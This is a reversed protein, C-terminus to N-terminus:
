EGNDDRESSSFTDEVIDLKNEISSLLDPIKRTTDEEYPVWKEKEPSYKCKVLVRGTLSKSMINDCLISCEKSPIYAIGMRKIKFVAKNNSIIKEYLYLKYVDVIETKRMEFTATIQTDNTKCIYRVIKKKHNKDELSEINKSPLTQHYLLPSKLNNVEKISNNFLFILKTGSIEPYFAMGKIPYIKSKKANKVLLEIDKFEELKNVLLDIDSLNNDHTMNSKLYAMLEILKNQIKDNQMNKGRFYYVDNIMFVKKPTRQLLIGDMITGNYITEDLRIEIPIIEVKNYNIKAPNYSLTKRDILFSHYTDRIKIFVLLCNEGTYNGSIYFKQQSLLPLDAEVEILKYKFKSIEVTSYIYSILQQVPNNFIQLNNSHLTYNQQKQASNYKQNYNYTKDYIKNNQFPVPSVFNNLNSQRYNKNMNNHHINGYYNNNSRQNM